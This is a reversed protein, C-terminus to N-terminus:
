ASVQVPERTHMAVLRALDALDHGPELHVRWPRETVPPVCAECWATIGARPGQFPPMEGDYRVHCPVTAAPRRPTSRGTIWVPAEATPTEAAAATAPAAAAPGFFYDRRSRRAGHGSTLRGPV